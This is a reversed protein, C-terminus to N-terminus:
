NKLSEYKQQQSPDLDMLLEYVEMKEKRPAKSFVKTIEDSKTELFSSVIVASARFRNVDRLTKISTAIKASGKAVDNYMEDLGLRHYEYYLIRFKKYNDDLLNSILAYRNRDDEFAKWGKESQSQASNVIAEAKTFSPTGSFTEYSDCDYGVILYCYYAIIATLNSGFTGETFELQSMELYEFNFNDDKFNFLSTYYASNYVPRRAQIQLSGKFTKDNQENIIIVFSCEIKENSAYTFTSWRRNNVFDSLAKQLTVYVQKNTGKIQDSNIVVNCNLEQSYAKFFLAFFLLIITLTRKM